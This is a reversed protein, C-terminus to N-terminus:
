PVYLLYVFLCVANILLIFSDLKQLRFLFFFRMRNENYESQDLLIVGQDISYLM